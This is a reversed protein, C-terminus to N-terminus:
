WEGIFDTLSCFIIENLIHSLFDFFQHLINAINLQGLVLIRQHPFHNRKIRQFKAEILILYLM